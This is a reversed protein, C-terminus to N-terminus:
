FLYYVIKDSKLNPILIAFNKIIILNIKKEKFNTIDIIREMMKNECFVLFNEEENEKSLLSEVINELLKQFKPM